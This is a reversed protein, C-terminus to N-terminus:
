VGSDCKGVGLYEFKYRLFDIGQGIHEALSDQHPLNGAFVFTMKTGQYLGFARADDEDIYDIMVLYPHKKELVLLMKPVVGLSLMNADELCLQGYILFNLTTVFGHESIM